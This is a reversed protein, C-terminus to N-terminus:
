NIQIVDNIKLIMTALETAMSIQSIKSALAEFIEAKKMNKEGTELCDIGITHDDLALQMEHIKEVYDFPEFGSNTALTLPIELLATAFARIGAEIEPPHSAAAKGLFISTSIEASGGGYVIFPHVLINRIACLADWISRKAEEVVYETSGRVLITVSRRQDPNEVIIIKESETTLTEERINATGLKAESLDEFRAVIQGDIHAAMLGLEHGGVWRVAPLGEAVLLSNAEDDFGWQCMVVDAKSAKVAQVMSVFSEKEYNELAKYDEATKVLLSNKTKLKPPEFPCSLLAVRANSITKKMQPHSFSKDLVIGNILRTAALDGGPLSRVTILGLDVDRREIDAVSMVADVCLEAFNASAVIKSGLTTRATRLMCARLDSVEEGIEELHKVSLRQAVALGEAIKIPHIGREMLGKAQKLIAAALVVISTTGDGIAEDQATSLEVILRSIPNTTMEMEQLITAGDNTVTIKKDPSELIKDMGAPGLSTRLFAAISEVTAINTFVCEKGRLALGDNGSVRFSQGLEDTM